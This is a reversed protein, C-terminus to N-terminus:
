CYKWCLFPVPFEKHTRTGLTHITTHVFNVLSTIPLRLSYCHANVKFREWQSVYFNYLKMLHTNIIPRILETNRVRERECDPLLERPGHIGHHGRHLWVTEVGQVRVGVGELHGEDRGPEGFVHTVPWHKTPDHQIGAPKCAIFIVGPPLKCLRSSFFLSGTPSIFYSSLISLLLSPLFIEM